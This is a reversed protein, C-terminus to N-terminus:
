RMVVGDHIGSRRQPQRAYRGSDACNRIWNRWTAPWDLKTATAGSKAQWYDRFRQAEASADLDPILKTAYEQDPQFDEPIRSGRASHAPKDQVSPKGQSPKALSPIVRACTTPGNSPTDTAANSAEYSAAKLDSKLAHKLVSKLDAKLGPKLHNKLAFEIGDNKLKARVWNPCHQSWDHVLLRHQDDVDLFGATVMAEVFASPKGRWRAKDAIVADSYKGVNGQPTLKAVFAWFLELHGIATPLEVELQAALELTKPHELAELKMSVGGRLSHGEAIGSRNSDFPM